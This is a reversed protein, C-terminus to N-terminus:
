DDETEEYADPVAEDFWDYAREIADEYSCGYLEMIEDLNYVMTKEITIIRAM